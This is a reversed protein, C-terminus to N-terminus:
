ESSKPVETKRRRFWAIAFGSVAAVVLLPLAVTLPMNAENSPPSLPGSAPAEITFAFRYVPEWPWPSQHMNLYPWANSGEHIEITHLGPAGVVPLSVDVSGKGTFASVWGSLGGDYLIDWVSTYKEWGLGTGHIEIRTGDASLGATFKPIIWWEASALANGGVVAEVTHIGGFDMPTQLSGSAKGTADVPVTALIETVETAEWGNFKDALAGGIKTEMTVTQWRIEVEANASFGALAYPMQGGAVAKGGNGLTFHPTGDLVPVAALNPIALSDPATVDRLDTGANRSIGTGSTVTFTFEEIAYPTPADQPNMMPHKWPTPGDSPGYYLAPYVGLVHPGVGGVAQVWVSINGQSNFSCAFGLFRNDWLIGINNDFQTWGGAVLRVEILTGEPGETPTIWADRMLVFSSEAVAAGAVVAQVRHAPGGLDYPAVFPISYRGQADAVGTAITQNVEVFGSGSVRNGEMTFWLISVTAGPPVGAGSATVPTEPPGESPTLAMTAEAMAPSPVALVALLSALAVALALGASMREGSTRLRRSVRHEADKIKM